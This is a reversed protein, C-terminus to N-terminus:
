TDAVHLAAIRAQGKKFIMKIAEKFQRHRLSYLIPNM